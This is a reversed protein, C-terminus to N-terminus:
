ETARELVITEGHWASCADERPKLDRVCATLHVTDHGTVWESDLDPMVSSARCASVVGCTVVLQHENFHHLNLHGNAEARTAKAGSRSVPDLEVRGDADARRVAPEDAGVLM